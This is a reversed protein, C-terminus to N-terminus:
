NQMPPSLWAEGFRSDEGGALARPAQPQLRMPRLERVFAISLAPTDLAPRLEAFEGAVKESLPCEDLM